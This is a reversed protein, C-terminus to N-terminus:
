LHLLLRVIRSIITRPQSIICEVENGPDQDESRPILNNYMITSMKSM